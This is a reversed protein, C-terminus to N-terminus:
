PAEKKFTNTTDRQYLDDFLVPKDKQLAKDLISKLGGQVTVLNAGTESELRALAEVLRPYDKFFDNLDKTLNRIVLGEYSDSVAELDMALIDDPIWEIAKYVASQTVVLLSTGWKVEGSSEIQGQIEDLLVSLCFQGQETSGINFESALNVLFGKVMRGQLHAVDRICYGVGSRLLWERGNPSHVSSEEVVIPLELVSKSLCKIMKEKITKHFTDTLVSEDIQKEKGSKKFLSIFSM